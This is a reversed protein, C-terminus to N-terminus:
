VYWRSKDIISWKKEVGIFHKNVFKISPFCFCCFYTNVFIYVFTYTYDNSKQHRINENNYLLINKCIFTIMKPRHHVHHATSFIKRIKFNYLILLKYSESNIIIPKYYWYNSIYVKDVFLVKLDQQTVKHDCPISYWLKISFLFCFLLISITKM